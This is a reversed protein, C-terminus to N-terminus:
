FDKAKQIRDLRRMFQFWTDTDDRALRPGALFFFISSVQEIGKHTDKKKGSERAARCCGDCPMM